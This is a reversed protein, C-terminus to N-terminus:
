KEVKQYSKMVANVKQRCQNCLPKFDHRAYVTKVLVKRCIECPEYNNLLKM